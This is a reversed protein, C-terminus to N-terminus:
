KTDSYFHGCQSFENRKHKNNNTFVEVDHLGKIFRQYQGKRQVNIWKVINWETDIKLPNIGNTLM